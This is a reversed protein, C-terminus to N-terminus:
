GLLRSSRLTRYSRSEEYDTRESFDYGEGREREYLGCNLKM